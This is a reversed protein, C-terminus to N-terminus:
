VHPNVKKPASEIEEILLALSRTMGAAVARQDPDNTEILVQNWHDKRVRLWSTYVLWDRNHQLAYISQYVEPQTSM